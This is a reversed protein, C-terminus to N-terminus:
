LSRLLPWRGALKYVIFRFFFLPGVEQRGQHKLFGLPKERYRRRVEDIPLNLGEEFHLKRLLLVYGLDAVITGRGGTKSAKNLLDALLDPMPCDPNEQWELSAIRETLEVLEMPVGASRAVELASLLKPEGKREVDVAM